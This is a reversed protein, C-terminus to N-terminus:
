IGNNEVEYKTKARKSNRMSVFLFAQEGEYKNKLEKITLDKM